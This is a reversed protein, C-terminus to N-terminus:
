LQLHNICMGVDIKVDSSSSLVDVSTTSLHSTPSWQSLAASTVLPSHSPSEGNQQEYVSGGASTLSATPSSALRNQHRSSSTTDESTYGESAVSPPSTPLNLFSDFDLSAGLVPIATDPITTDTYDQNETTATATANILLSSLLLDGQSTM